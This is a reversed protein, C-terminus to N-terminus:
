ILVTSEIELLTRAIRDDLFLDFPAGIEQTVKIQPTGRVFFALARTEVTKVM